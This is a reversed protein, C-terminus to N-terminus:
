HKSSKGLATKNGSGNSVQVAGREREKERLEDESGLSARSKHCGLRRLAPNITHVLRGPIPNPTQLVKGSPRRLVQLGEGM